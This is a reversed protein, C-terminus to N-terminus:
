RPTSRATSRASRRRRDASAGRAAGQAAPHVHELPHGPLHRAGRRDNQIAQIQNYLAEKQLRETRARTVAANLEALTQVVINQKDELSVADTKERYNQLKQESEEVQKRQEGLREGLWDSAQKTSYFKFELNQVIYARALNNAM